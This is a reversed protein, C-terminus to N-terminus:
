QLGLRLLLHQLIPFRELFWLFLSNYTARNRLMPSKLWPEYLVKSDYDHISDGNGPGLGSPGSASGWWNLTANISSDSALLRNQGSGAINNYHIENEYSDEIFFSYSNFFFRQRLIFSCNIQQGPGLDISYWLEPYIQRYGQKQSFVIYNGPEVDLEYEGNEDTITSYTAESGLNTNIAKVTAGPLPDPICTVSEKVTGFIKSESSVIIISKKTTYFAANSQCAFLTSFLMFILLFYVIKRM